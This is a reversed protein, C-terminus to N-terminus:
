DLFSGRKKPIHTFCYCKLKGDKMEIQVPPKGCTQCVVPIGNLTFVPTDYLVTDGDIIIDFTVSMTPLVIPSKGVVTPNTARAIKERELPTFDDYDPIPPVSGYLSICFFLTLFRKM